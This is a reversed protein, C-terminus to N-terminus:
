DEETDYVVEHVQVVRYILPAGRRDREVNVDVVFATHLPNHTKDDLVHRVRQRDTEPIIYVRLPKPSISEILGKDGTRGFVKPDEVNTQYFYMVVREHDAKERVDLAALARSAGLEAMRCESDSFTMELVARDCGDTEEYRIAALGLSSENNKAVLRVVDRFYTIRRKSHPVDASTVQDKKSLGILWRVTEATNSVFDHVTNVDTLIPAVAGLLPMAPALEALICNTELRTIYLKVDATQPAPDPQREKLFSQYEFGLGQFALTM